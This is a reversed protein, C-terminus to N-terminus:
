TKRMGAMLKALLAVGAESEARNATTDANNFDGPAGTQVVIGDRRPVVNLSGYSIGYDVEPQPVLRAIQGCVPVISDDGFLARAGYGTANILTKQPLKELDGPSAFERVEIQGGSALFDAMLLRQYASINFIMQTYRRVYTAPFPHAGRPIDQARPWLSRILPLLNAYTPEGDMEGGHSGFAEDSLAYGDRWEVPEGPLGLLTQYTQFSDRAMAEWRAIGDPTLAEATCYRSDPSWVGTARSSRVDPPLERAYITVKLGARQAVRASTLGIAGCGVIGIEPVNTALVERVALRASGWSLSWGSGGHGYHHVVTKRGLKESEIRPGAARFPRTCVTIAIIRDAHARIPALPPLPDYGTTNDALTALRAPGNACASLAGLALTAGGARLLARRDFSRAQM